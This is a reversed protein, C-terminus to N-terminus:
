KVHSDLAMPIETFFFFFIIMHSKTLSTKQSLSDANANKAQLNNQKISEEIRAKNQVVEHYLTHLLNHAKM